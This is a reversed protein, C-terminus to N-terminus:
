PVKDFKGSTRGHLAANIYRRILLVLLGDKIDDIIDDM